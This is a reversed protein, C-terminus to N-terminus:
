YIVILIQLYIEMVLKISSLRNESSKPDSNNLFKIDNSEIESNSVYNGDKFKVNTLSMKIKQNSTKSKGDVRLYVKFITEGNPVGDVSTYEFGNNYAEKVVTIGETKEFHDFLFNDNKIISGSIGVVPSEPTVNVKVSCEFTEGKTIQEPCEISGAFTDANVKYNGIMLLVLILIFVRIKKM